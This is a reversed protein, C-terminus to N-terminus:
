YPAAIAEFKMENFDHLPKESLLKGHGLRAARLQGEAAWVLRGDVFDAWEWEPFALVTDTSEHWLEHADWYCSRGPPAGTEAFALKRLRWPKPLKKEFM